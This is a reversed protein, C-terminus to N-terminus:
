RYLAKVMGWTTSQTAVPCNVRLHGLSTICSEFFFCDTDPSVVCLAGDAPEIRLESCASSTGFLQYTMTLAVVPLTHCSAYAISIGTRSDGFFLYATTESMWVGTFGAAPRVSFSVGTAYDGTDLVYLTVTRPVDDVLTSQTLAEDAYIALRRTEATAPAVIALSAVWTALTVVVVRSDRNTYHGM